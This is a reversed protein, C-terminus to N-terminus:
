GILKDSRISTAYLFSAGSDVCSAETVLHGPSLFAISVHPQTAHVTREHRCGKCSLNRAKNLMVLTQNAITASDDIRCMPRSVRLM